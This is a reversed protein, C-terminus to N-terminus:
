GLSFGYIIGCIEEVARNQKSKCSSYILVSCSTQLIITVLIKILDIAMFKLASSTSGTVMQAQNAHDSAEKQWCGRCPVFPIRGWKKLFVYLTKPKTKLIGNTPLLSLTGLMRQLSQNNYCAALGCSPLIQSGQSGTCCRWSSPLISKSFGVTQPGPHAFSSIASLLATLFECFIISSESLPFSSLPPLWQQM